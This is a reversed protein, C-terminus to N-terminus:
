RILTGTRRWRTNRFFDLVRGLVPTDSRPAAEDYSWIVFLARGVMLERPVPGWYRSDKSNDRNDGMVFYQGDPVRFPRGVGNVEGERAPRLPSAPSAARM